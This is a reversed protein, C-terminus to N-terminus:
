SKVKPTGDHLQRWGGYKQEKQTSILGCQCVTAAMKFKHVKIKLKEDYECKPEHVKVIDYKM